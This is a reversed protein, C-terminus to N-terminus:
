GRGAAHQVVEAEDGGVLRQAVTPARYANVVLGIERLLRQEEGKGRAESRASEHSESSYAAVRVVANTNMAMQGTPTGRSYVVSRHSLRSASRLPM